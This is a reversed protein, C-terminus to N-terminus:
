ESDMLESYNGFFNNEADLKHKNIYKNREMNCMSM